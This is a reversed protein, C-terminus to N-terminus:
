KGSPTSTIFPIVTNSRISRLSTMSDGGYGGFPGFTSSIGVTLTALRIMRSGVRLVVLDGVKMADGFKKLSALKRLRTGAQGEDKLKPGCAPWPGFRGPGMAIVDGRLLVEAYERNTDGAAFLWITKGELNL